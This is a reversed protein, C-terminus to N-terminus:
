KGEAWAKSLMATRTEDSRSDLTVLGRIYERANPIKKQDCSEAARKSDISYPHTKNDNM